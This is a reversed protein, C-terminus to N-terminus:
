ATRAYNHEEKRLASVSRRVDQLAERAVDRADQVSQLAEQPHASHYVLAKELQLHIATLSHGLSDHIERAVRNREEITALEAVQETYISLQHHSRSVEELLEEARIRSQYERQQGERELITGQARLVGWICIACFYLDSSNIERQGVPPDFWFLAIYILIILAAMGYGAKYGFYLTTRFPLMLYLMTMYGPPLLAAVTTCLFHLCLFLAAARAPIKKGYRRHELRDLLLLMLIAVVFLPVLWWAAYRALWYLGLILGLLYFFTVSGNFSTVALLGRLGSAVNKGSTQWDRKTYM